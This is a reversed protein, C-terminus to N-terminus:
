AVTIQLVLERPIRLLPIGMYHEIENYFEDMSLNDSNAQIWSDLQQFIPQTLQSFAYSVQDMATPYIVSDIRLKEDVAWKWPAYATMDTGTLQQKPGIGRPRYNEAANTTGAAGAVGAVGTALQERARALSEGLYENRQMAHDLDAQLQAKLDREEQIKSKKAQNHRQLSLLQADALQVDQRLEDRPKQMSQYKGQSRNLEQEIQTLEKEAQVLDKQVQKRQASQDRSQQQLEVYQQAIKQHTTVDYAVMQTLAHYTRTGNSTNLAHRFDSIRAFSHRPPLHFLQHAPLEALNLNVNLSLEDPDTAPLPAVSLPDTHPRPQVTTEELVAAEEINIPDEPEFAGPM